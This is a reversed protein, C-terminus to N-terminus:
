KFGMNILAAIGFSTVMIGSAKNIWGLAKLELRHRLLGTLSSLLLWWLASGAFVGLVLALASGYGPSQSGIGLGAFV